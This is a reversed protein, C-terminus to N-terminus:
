PARWTRIAITASAPRVLTRAPSRGSPVARTRSRSGTPLGTSAFPLTLLLQDTVSIGSPSGDDRAGVFLIGPKQHNLMDNAFACVAQRLRDGDTASEKCEVRDSEVDDLLAELEQDTM